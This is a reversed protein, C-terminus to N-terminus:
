AEFETKLVEYLARAEEETLTLGRSMRVHGPSWTRIDYKAPKDNWAAINVEMKWGNEYKAIDGVHRKLIVECENM